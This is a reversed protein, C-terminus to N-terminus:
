GIDICRCVPRSAIHGARQDGFAAIAHWRDVVHPSPM